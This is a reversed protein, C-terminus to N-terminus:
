AGGIELWVETAYGWGRLIRWRWCCRIWGLVLIHKGQPDLWLVKSALEGRQGL